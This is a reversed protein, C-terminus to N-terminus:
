PGSWHGTAAVFIQRNRCAGREVIRHGQANEGSGLRGKLGTSRHVHERGPYVPIRGGGVRGPRHTDLLLHHEDIGAVPREGRPDVVHQRRQRAADGSGRARLRMTRRELQGAPRMRGGGGGRRRLQRIQAGAEDSVERREPQASGDRARM